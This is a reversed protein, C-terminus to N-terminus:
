RGEESVVKFESIIFRKSMKLLDSDFVKELIKFELSSGLEEEPVDETDVTLLSEENVNGEGDRILNAEKKDNAFHFDIGCTNAGNDLWFYLLLLLQSLVWM